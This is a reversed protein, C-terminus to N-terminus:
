KGTHSKRKSSTTCLGGNKSPRPAYLLESLGARVRPGERLRPTSPPVPMMPVAAAEKEKVIDSTKQESKVSRSRKSTRPISHPPVSPKTHAVGSRRPVPPLMIGSNRSTIKGPTQPPQCSSVRRVQQVVTWSEAALWESRVASRWPERGCAPVCKGAHRQSRQRLQNIAM